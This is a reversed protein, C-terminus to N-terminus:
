DKTLPLGQAHLGLSKLTGQLCGIQPSDWLKPSIIEERGQLVGGTDTCWSSNNHPAANPKLSHKQLSEIGKGM